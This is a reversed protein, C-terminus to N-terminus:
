CGSKEEKIRRKLERSFNLTRKIFKIRGQIGNNWSSVGEEREQQIVNVRVVQYHLKKALYYVYLDLSFDFPPDTIQQYFKRSILTPQANIDWLPQGLYLTEYIGMCMTFFVDSVPRNKRRGKYFCNGANATQRILGAYELFTEPPLQLDAHIWGLWEGKCAALGQMIGYGYGQNGIIDIKKIYPHSLVERDIMASTGDSSGNNVLILEFGDIALERAVSDFREVLRHINKEENYCPVVISYM